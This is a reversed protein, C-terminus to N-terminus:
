LAFFLLGGIVSLIVGLGGIKVIMEESGPPTIPTSVASTPNVFIEPTPTAIAIAPTASDSSSNASPQTVTITQTCNATTSIGGQNDTLVANAQFPGPNQYTHAIQASISNTGIGGSQTVDQVPGDGFNFTAKSITGNPDNGIATFTISFPAPGSTTRDVNLASCIPAQNPVPTGPIQTPSLGPTITISAGNVTSLVNESSQDGQGSSLVQMKSTDFAIPTGATDTPALAKFIVTAIKTKTQVYTELGSESFSFMISNSTYVPRDIMSAYTTPDPVIGAGITSSSTALKTPDYTIFIKAFMVLNNGPDLQIDLSFTDGVAVTKPISSPVFSITTAATARSRTEQQNQLLFITLPISVLLVVIFGFLFIKKFSM